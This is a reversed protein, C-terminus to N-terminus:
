SMTWLRGGSDRQCVSYEAAKVLKRLFQDGPAAASQFNRRSEAKKDTGDKAGIHGREFVNASVRIRTLCRCDGTKVPAAISKTGLRGVSAAKVTAMRSSATVGPGSMVSHILRDIRSPRAAPKM